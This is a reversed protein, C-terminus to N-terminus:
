HLIYFGSMNATIDIVIGLLIDSLKYNLFMNWFDLTGERNKLM